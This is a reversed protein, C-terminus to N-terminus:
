TDGVETCLIDTMSVCSFKKKKEFEYPIIDEDGVMLFLLKVLIKRNCETLTMPLM